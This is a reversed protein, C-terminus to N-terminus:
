LTASLGGQQAPTYAIEVYNQMYGCVRMCAHVCLGQTVKVATTVKGLCTRCEDFAYETVIRISLAQTKFSATSIM